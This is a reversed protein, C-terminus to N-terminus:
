HLKSFNTGIITMGKPTKQNEDNLKSEINIILGGQCLHERRVHVHLVLVGLFIGRGPFLSSNVLIKRLHYITSSTNIGIALAM